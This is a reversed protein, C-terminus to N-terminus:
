DAYNIPYIAISNVNVVQQNQCTSAGHGLSSHAKGARQNNNLGDVNLWQRDQM